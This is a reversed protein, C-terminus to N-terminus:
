RAFEMLSMIFGMVLGCSVLVLGFGWFLDSESRSRNM